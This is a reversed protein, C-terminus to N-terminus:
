RVVTHVSGLKRFIGAALPISAWPSSLNHKDSARDMHNNRFRRVHRAPNPATTYMLQCEARHLGPCETDWRSLWCLGKVNISRRGGFYGTERRLTKGREKHCCQGALAVQSRAVQLDWEESCIRTTEPYPLGAGMKYLRRICNVQEAGSYGPHQM